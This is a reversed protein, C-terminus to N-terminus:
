SFYVYTVESCLFSCGRPIQFLFTLTRPVLVPMMQSSVTVTKLQHCEMLESIDDIQLTVQQKEIEISAAQGTQIYIIHM